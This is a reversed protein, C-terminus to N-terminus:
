IIQKLMEATVATPTFHTDFTKANQASLSELKEPRGLLDVAGAVLEKPEDFAFQEKFCNNTYLLKENNIIKQGVIPKGLALFQGLKFSLCNHLGRVYIAVKARALNTLYNPLTYRGCRFPSFKTPITGDFAFGTVSVLKPYKRIEKIVQYRFEIHERHAPNNYYGVVFFIDIDRNVNRLQTIQNLSLLNKIVRLRFRADKLNWAMVASPVPRPLFRIMDQTKVPFFPYAAIIKERWRRLLPDNNIEMDNYNIKFYYRVKELLPIHYGMGYNQGTRCGDRTDICFSFEDSGLKVNFLCISFLLQRWQKEVMNDAKLMKPPSKSIAMKYGFQRQNEFLGNLFFSSYRIDAFDYYIIKRKM